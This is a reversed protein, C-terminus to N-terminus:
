ARFLTPRRLHHYECGMGCFSGTNAQLGASWVCKPKLLALKPCKLIIAYIYEGMYMNINSWPM